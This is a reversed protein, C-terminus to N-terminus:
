KASLFAKADEESVGSVESVGQHILGLRNVRVMWWFERRDGGLEGGLVKGKLERVLDNYIGPEELEAMEEKMVRIAEIARGYGSDGVSHRIYSHVITALQKSVDKITGIDTTTALAQKFEPIANESSLKTRKERGLLEEVNLGSLPKEIDRARKRGKQKPPVKKVDAAKLLAVVSQAVEPINLLKKPPESYKILSNPVPPLPDTPHVARHRIAQNIRHLTPSYTYEPDGYIDGPYEEFKSLDMQDVYNSMAKMLDDSPLNRHKELTKGSMTVIRDLPPFRYHRIDEAFPLQCEILGEISVKVCPALLVIRPDKNDKEVLRAVAFTDLEHLANVFSSLAMAAKENTKQAVIINTDSMDLYREHKDKYVFGLVELGADSEFNTVNLDSESIYVATRGYEYGKALDEPEVDRKGGPAEEDVVRYTRSNKVAALQENPTPSPGQGEQLTASSQTSSEGPALDVRAVYSSATPPRAVRTKPYREVQISLATDYNQVDGITLLGRYSAVPRPLKVRPNELEEIAEAMTGFVSGTTEECDKVIRSLIDENLAKDEPKDVETKGHMGYNENDFDPGLVTLQIKDDQIKKTIHEIDSADWQGRGNTILVIERKYMLKKCKESIMHIAVVLASLADGSDTSSPHIMERLQSIDPMLAQGLPQLISVNAYDEGLPNNTEDTRLGVVGLLATKRGTGITTTIRDWVYRMCWELDSEKRGYNKEGMSKGLDVIYVTAEKDAM